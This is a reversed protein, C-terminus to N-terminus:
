ETEQGSFSTIVLVNTVSRLDAPPEIVAYLSLGGSDLLVERITGIVLDEPCIGGVGTTVVIDGPAAKSERPLYSLRLLGDESLAITGATVGTERTSIDMAGVSVSVDLLTRVKASSNFAEEVFGVMGEATIVPDGASIGDLSGHDITFSSFRDAADRGIVAATMFELDPKAAKIDLYDRLQENEARYTEYDILLTRLAANEERLDENEKKLRRGAFVSELTNSIGSSINSVTREVPETVMNTMETIISGASGDIAARVMFALMVILLALLIKFNRGKFFDQM